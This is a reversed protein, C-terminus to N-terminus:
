SDMEEKSGDEVSEGVPSDSSELLDIVEPLAKQGSSGPLGGLAFGINIAPGSYGETQKPKDVSQDIVTTGEEAPMHELAWQLLKGAVEHEGKKQAGRISTMYLQVFEAAHAKLAERAIVVRPFEKQTPARRKIKNPEAPVSTPPLKPKSPSM